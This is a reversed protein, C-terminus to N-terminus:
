WQAALLGFLELVQWEESSRFDWLFERLRQTEQQKPSPFLVCAELEEMEISLWSVNVRNAAYLKAKTCTRM